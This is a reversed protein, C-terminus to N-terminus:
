INKLQKLIIEYEEILDQRNQIEAKTQVIQNITAMRNARLAGYSADDENMNLLDAELDSLVEQNREILKPLTVCIKTISELYKAVRSKAYENIEERSVIDTNIYSSMQWVPVWLVADDRQNEVRQKAQEIQEPTFQENGSEAALLDEQVSEITEWNM